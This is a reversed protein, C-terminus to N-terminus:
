REGGGYNRMGRRLRFLRGESPCPSHDRIRFVAQGDFITLVAAIAPLSLPACRGAMSSDAATSVPPPAAGCPANPAAGVEGGAPCGGHSHRASRAIDLGDALNLPSSRSM